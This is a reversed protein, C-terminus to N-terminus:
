LCVSNTLSERSSQGSRESAVHSTQETADGCSVSGEPRSGDGGPVEAPVVAQDRPYKSFFFGLFLVWFFGLIVDSHDTM